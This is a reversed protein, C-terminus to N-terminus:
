SSLCLWLLVSASLCHRNPMVKKLEMLSQLFSDGSRYEVSFIAIFGILVLVYYLLVTRGDIGGTIKDERTM